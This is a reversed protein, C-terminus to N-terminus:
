TSIRAWDTARLRRYGRRQPDRAVLVWAQAEVSRMHLAARVLARQIDTNGTTELLDLVSIRAPDIDVLVGRIPRGDADPVLAPRNRPSRWLTGHVTAPQPTLDAVWPHDPQGPLSSGYLFVVPMPTRELPM